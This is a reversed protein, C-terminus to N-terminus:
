GTAAHSEIAVAANIAREDGSITQEQLYTPINVLRM